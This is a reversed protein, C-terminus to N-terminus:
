RGLRSNFTRLTYADIRKLWTRLSGPAIRAPPLPLM